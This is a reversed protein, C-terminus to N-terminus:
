EGGNLARFYEDIGNAIGTAIKEQYEETAMKLDEEENTMYGMEVISVPVECWNIGSMTDTEWVYEKKAGTAEVTEELIKESLLKSQEYIVACYPNKETPCITMMGNVSSKESGNAHIRVFVDANLDNAVKARESNSIDVQHTTRVMVVEYGREKLLQELKLSVMLNLEYEKLGSAVGQTGSAVKAKMEQAGPGVPEKDSNGKEQHGADIVVLYNGSVSGKNKETESVTSQTDKMGSEPEEPLTLVEIFKNNIFGEQEEFLIRSWDEQEELLTYVAGIPAQGLVESEEIGPSKRVNVKDAIVRVTSVMEEQDTQELLAESESEQFNVSEAEQSEETTPSEELYELLAEVKESEGTKTRCGSCAVMMLLMVIVVINRKM